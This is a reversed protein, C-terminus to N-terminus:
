VRGNDIWIFRLPSGIILSNILKCFRSIRPMTKDNSTGIFGLISRIFPSPLPFFFFSPRDRVAAVKYEVFRTQLRRPSRCPRAATSQEFSWWRRSLRTTSQTSLYEIKASNTQWLASLWNRRFIWNDNGVPSGREIPLRNVSKSTANFRLRWNGDGRWRTDECPLIFLLSANLSLFPSAYSSDLHILLSFIPHPYVAVPLSSVPRQPVLSAKGRGTLAYAFAAHM